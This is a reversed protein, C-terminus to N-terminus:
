RCAGHFSSLQSTGARDRPLGAGVILWARLAHSLAGVILWARLAHSRAQGAIPGYSVWWVDIGRNWIGRICTM